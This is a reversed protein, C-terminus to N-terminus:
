LVRLRESGSVVKVEDGVGLNKNMTTDFYCKAYLKVKPKEWELRTNYTVNKGNLKSAPNVKENAGGCTNVTIIKM